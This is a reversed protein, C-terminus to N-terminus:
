VSERLNQIVNSWSHDKNSAEDPVITFLNWSLHKMGQDGYFSRLACVWGILLLLIFLYYFWIDMWSTKTTSTCTNAPPKAKRNVHRDWSSWWSGGSCLKKMNEMFGSIPDKIWSPVFRKERFTKSLRGDRKIHDFNRLLSFGNKM